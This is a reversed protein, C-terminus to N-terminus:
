IRTNLHVADDKIAGVGVPRRMEELSEEKAHNLFFVSSIIAFAVLLNYICVQDDEYM